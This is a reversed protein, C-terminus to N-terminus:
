AKLSNLSSFFASVALSIALTVPLLLPDKVSSQMQYLIFFKQFPLFFASVSSTLFGLSYNWVGGGDDNM